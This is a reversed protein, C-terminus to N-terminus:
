GYGLKRGCGWAGFGYRARIREAVIIQQERTAQGANSGYQQGGFGNWTGNYIGLGGSFMPGQMGWNGGTECNAINDWRPDAKTGYYHITPQAAVVPVQSVPIAGVASGNNSTVEYTIKLTGPVAAQDRTQGVPLNPDPMTQDPVNYPVLASTLSSGVRIVQVFPNDVPIVSDIPPTTYDSPGLVVKYYDLLERVSRVPLKYNVGQGDVALTGTRITRLQLTAGSQLRAPPNLIAIDHPLKLTKVFDRPQTRATYFGRVLGDLDVSVPFARHVQITMGDALTDTRAPDVIDERRLSVHQERLFAGVTNQGSTASVVRGDVAFKVHDGQNFIQPVTYFGVIV